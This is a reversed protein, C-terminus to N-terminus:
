PSTSLEERPPSLKWALNSYSGGSEAGGQQRLLMFAKGARKVLDSCLRQDRADKVELGSIKEAMDRASVPKGNAERLENILFRRLENRAVLVVRNSRPRMDDLDGEFGRSRQDVSEITNCVEALKTRLTRIEGM